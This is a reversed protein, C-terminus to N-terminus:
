CRSEQKESREPAVTFNSIYCLEMMCQYHTPWYNLDYRKIDDSQESEGKRRHEDRARELFDDNLKSNTEFAFPILRTLLRVCNLITEHEPAAGSESLAEIYHLCKKM